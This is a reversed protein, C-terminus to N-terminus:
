DQKWQMKGIHENEKNASKHILFVILLASGSLVFRFGFALLPPINGIVEKIALFSSGWLLSLSMLV